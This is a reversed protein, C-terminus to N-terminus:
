NVEILKIVKSYLILTSVYFAISHVLKQYTQLVYWLRFFMGFFLYKEKNWM